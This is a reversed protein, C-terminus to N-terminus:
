DRRDCEQRRLDAERCLVHRIILDADEERLHKFEVGVRYGLGRNLASQLPRCYVVRAFTEIGIGSPELLLRLRLIRGPEIPNRAEFSLGGASINVERLPLRDLDLEHRLAVEALMELKQNLAELCRALEEQREELRHFLPRMTRDLAMFKAKLNFGNTTSNSRKDPLAQYAERNVLVYTLVVQDSVRVFSRREQLSNCPIDTLPSQRTM